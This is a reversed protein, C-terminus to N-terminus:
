LIICRFHPLLPWLLCRILISCIFSLRRFLEAAVACSQELVVSASVRHGRRVRPHADVQRAHVNFGRTLVFVDCSIPESGCTVHCLLLSSHYKAIDWRCCYHLAFWIRLRMWKTEPPCQKSGDIGTLGALAMGKQPTLTAHSPLSARSLAFLCSLPCFCRLSSNRATPATLRHQVSAFYCRRPSPSALSRAVRPRRLRPNVHPYSRQCPLVRYLSPLSDCRTRHISVTSPSPADHPIGTVVSSTPDDFPSAAVKGLMQIGADDRPLFPRM